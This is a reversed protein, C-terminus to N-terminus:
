RKSVIDCVKACLYIAYSAHMDPMTDARGIFAASIASEPSAIGDVEM